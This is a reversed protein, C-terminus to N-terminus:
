AIWITELFPITTDDISFLPRNKELNWPVFYALNQVTERDPVRVQLNIWDMIDQITKTLKQDLRLQQNLFRLGSNQKLQYAAEEWHIGPIKKRLIYGNGRDQLWLLPPNIRVQTQQIRIGQTKRELKQLVEKRKGVEKLLLPSLREFMYVQDRLWLERLRTPDFGLELLDAITLKLPDTRGKEEMWQRLYPRQYLPLREIARTPNTKIAQPLSVWWSNKGFLQFDVGGPIFNFPQIPLSRVPSSLGIQELSEGGTYGLLEQIRRQFGLLKTTFKTFMYRMLPTGQGTELENKFLRELALYITDFEEITRRVMLENDQM